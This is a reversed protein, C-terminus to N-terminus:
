IPPNTGKHGRLFVKAKWPKNEVSGKSWRWHFKKKESQLFRQFICLFTSFHALCWHNMGIIMAVWTASIWSSWPELWGLCITWSVRDWCYRVCPQSTVQHCPAQRAHTIGQTQNGVGLFFLCFFHSL